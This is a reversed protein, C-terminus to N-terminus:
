LGQLDWQTAPSPLKANCGCMPFSKHSSYNHVTYFDCNKPHTQLSSDCTFTLNTHGSSPDPTHPNAHLAARSTQPPFVVSTTNLCRSPPPTHCRRLEATLSPDPLQSCLLCRRECLGRPSPSLHHTCHTGPFPSPLHAQHDHLAEELSLFFWQLIGPDSSEPGTSELITAVLWVLSNLVSFTAM